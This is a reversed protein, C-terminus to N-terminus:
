SDLEDFGVDFTELLAPEEDWNSFVEDLTQERDDGAPADSLALKAFLADVTARAGRQDIEGSGAPAKFTSLSVIAAGEGEGLLAGGGPAASGGSVFGMVPPPPVAAIRIADAIIWGNVSTDNLTVVLDGGTHMYATSLDAFTAGADAVSTGVGPVALPNSPALKQNVAIPGAAGGGSTSQISFPANTARNSFPSWTAGIQVFTGPSLGTFTWTATDGGNPSFEARVDNMFGQGGFLGFGASSAFGPQGDDLILSALVDAEVSFSFPAEDADSNGFSVLGAFSAPASTDVLLEFTAEQGPPLMVTTAGDFLTTSPSGSVTRDGLMFGSAPLTLMPGLALDSAGVNQITFVEGLSSGVLGQGIDVTTSNSVVAVSDNTVAIEPGTLREIRVADAIVNGTNAGSLTVTLSSGTTTFVGLNKWNAGQDQFDSPAIRQNVTITQPSTVGSVAYPADTARNGFATWTASVSYVGGTVLGTFSYTATEVVGGSNAERVDNKFGQNTWLGLNGSDSYTGTLPPPATPGDNDIIQVSAAVTALLNLQYPNEDADNTGISAVGSKVGTTSTDVLIEFTVPAADPALVTPSGGFLGAPSVAGLQFGAPLSISGALTLDGTGQNTVTFTKGVTDGQAVAGFDVTGGSAVHPSGTLQIEPGHSAREVLRVADAIVFGNADDGWEVTLSTGTSRVIAIVDFAKGGETFDSPAIQQNVDFTADGGLIDQITLPADTARNMGATWSVGVEYTAMSTLGTFTYSAANGSGPTIQRVDNEFGQGSFSPLPLGAGSEAYGTGFDGDDIISSPAVVDGTLTIEYPNEDADNSGFVITASPTGPQDALMQVTFTTTDGPAVSTAGFGGGVLEFQPLQDLAAVLSANDLTLDANGNNRVTFTEDLPSGIGTAGFAFVGGDPVESSGSDAVLIEPQDAIPQLRIADAVVYENAGTNTLSITITGGPAVTFPGGLDEWSSGEAAYDNPDLEQNVLVTFPGGTVGGVTFPSNTARNGSPSWTASIRFMDGPTLSSFTFTATSTPANDAAAQVTDGRGQSGFTFFNGSSTYGPAGDGNDIILSPTTFADADLTIEFPNEDLEDTAIRLVNVFKGAASADFRVTVAATGGAAVSTPFGGVLSFGAPLSPSNLTLARSGTNGITITRDVPTGVTTAGFNLTASGDILSNGNHIIELEPQEVAAVRVVDAIVEGSSAADSLTVTLTGGADVAYIGLDEFVHGHAERDDPALRQDLDVTAPNTVGGVSYPADPARNTSPSWSTSVVYDRGPTLGDFTWVATDGSNDAAAAHVRGAFGQNNGTFLLFGATSMFAPAADENDILQTALVTGTVQFDFPNEDPDNTAFSIEGGLTGPLGADMRIVIDMNAAPALMAPTVGDPPTMGNFSVLTFGAPLSIPQAVTLSAGGANTVTFTKTLPSGSWTTGFDVVGGDDLVDPNVQVAVDPHATVFAPTTNANSFLREIRVADALVGRSAQGASDLLNVVIKGGTLQIPAGLDEWSVGAETFDNPMATQDIMVSLLTGNIDAVTFPAQTSPLLAAGSGSWTASVRYWGDPLDNFTWTARDGSGDGPAILEDGQFGTAGATWVGVVGFEPDGNDIIRQNAVVGRVDFTFPDVDRPPVTMDTPDAIGTGGPKQIVNENFDDSFIRIQAPFDGHGNVAAANLTVTFFTSDGPAISLPTAPSLGAPKDLTYSGAPVSPGLQLAIDDIRLPGEGDNRVVFTKMAPQSIGTVVDVRDVADSLQRTGDLVTLEGGGSSPSSAAGEPGFNVREIRVADALVIGNANDRLRVLLSHSRVEFVGLDEWFIEQHQFDDAGTQQDVDIRAILRGDDRISYEADSAVDALQPFVTPDPFSVSVRYMGPTVGFFQWTAAHSGATEGSQTDAFNFRFDGGFGAADEVNWNAFYSINGQANNVSETYNEDGDDIIRAQVNFPKLTEISEYTVTGLGSASISFGTDIAPNGAADFHWQDGPPIPEAPDPLNGDDPGGIFPDNGDVHRLTPPGGAPFNGDITVPDLDIIDNFQSGVVNEFMSPGSPDHEARRQLTVLQDDAVLHLVDQAVDLLDMDVMVNADAFRFDVTGTGNLDTIVDNSPGTGDEILGPELRFTDNGSVAPDDTNLGGDLTDNGHGDGLINNDADGVISDDGNGGFVNEISSDDPTGGAAIVAGATGGDVGTASGTSLDVVIGSTYDRYDLSDGQVDHGRGDISGSITVGDRFDFRDDANAAGILHEFGSFALDDEAVQNPAIPNAQAPGPPGAEPRGIQTANGTLRLDSEDSILVGTDALSDTLAFGTVGFPGFGAVVGGLDWHTRDAAINQELTDSAATGLVADINDFGDPAAGADITDTQDGRFGDASGHDDLRVTLPGTVVSWDLLDDDTGGDIRGTLVAGDSVVFHDLGENGNLVTVVDTPTSAQLNITDDGVTEHNEVSVHLTYSDGGVPPTGGVFGSSNFSDFKGVGIVFTGSSPFTTDILSTGSAVLNGDADYLFLEPSFNASDVDFVGRDGSGATFSYYDFTGDGTGNISIHPVTTSDTVSADSNLNWGAGDVHQVGITVNPNPGPLAPPPTSDNPEIEAVPDPAATVGHNELSIHLTYVDGGAPVAGGIFGGTDFADFKGVGIVFMGSSAFTHDIFSATAAGDGSDGPGNDNVALLNGDADYLFLESDFNEDDIDFIGQDGVNVTFSYYDFTGDGTGLISLHPIITSSTIDSNSLLNWGNLDVDQTGMLINPNPPPPATSNNLEQEPVPERGDGNVTLNTLGASKTTYSVNITDDGAVGNVTVLPKNAFQILEFPAPSAGFNVRWNCFNRELFPSRAKTKRPSVHTQRPNTSAV